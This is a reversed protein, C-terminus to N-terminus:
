EIEAKAKTPLLEALRAGAAEVVDTLGRARDGAAPSRWDFARPETDDFKPPFLADIEEQTM